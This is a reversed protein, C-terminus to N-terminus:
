LILALNYIYTGYYRCNFSMSLKGKGHKTNHKYMYINTYVRRNSHQSFRLITLHIKKHKNNM